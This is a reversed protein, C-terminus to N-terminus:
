VVGYIKTENVVVMSATVHDILRLLGCGNHKVGDIRLDRLGVM